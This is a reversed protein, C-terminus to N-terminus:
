ILFLFCDFISSKEERESVCVSASSVASSVDVLLSFIDAPAVPWKLIAEHFMLPIRAHTFTPQQKRVM